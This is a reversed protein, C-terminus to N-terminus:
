SFLEGIRNVRGAASMVRQKDEDTLAVGRALNAGAVAILGCESVLLAIADRASIPTPRAPAPRGDDVWAGLAKAAEIFSEGYAAMRYALVDGGKAQCNMCVFGGSHTNIRMSDSGGHFRCETTRWQTRRERFTLGEGEYFVLPDPLANRDLGM